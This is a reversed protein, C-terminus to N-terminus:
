LGGSIGAAAREEELWREFEAEPNEVGLNDAARRRSHIGSGILLREDTVMRSRDRPVITGWVPRIRYRWPDWEAGLREPDFLALLRLIMECRQKYAVGRILRKRKVKQLLPQIDVELAVGSLNRANDGFASRPTEGLDHLTRYLAQLYDVHLQVGGGALLDLLYAKAKEPLEWVAGPAVTIDDASDVNELVAIPNGSLELIMSLQSLARNLERSPEMLPPLDSIGWFQKPVRLNPFIVFPIFGYPNTKREHLNGDLWLDFSTQTWAEIVSARAKNVKVGYLEFMEEKTLEYRTAVRWVRGLDDGAWWVYLGQVDPSTVRVKRERLDWTVKFCGDGLIATDLETDFDLLDLHNYDHVAYLAEELRRANDNTEPDNALPDVAFGMESLLYSTVKEVITKAYNFTLRRERRRATGQWQEGKYFALNDRYSAMRPVNMRAILQPISTDQTIAM